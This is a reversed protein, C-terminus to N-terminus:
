NEGTTSEEGFFLTAASIAAEKDNFNFTLESQSYENPIKLESYGGNKSLDGYKMAMTGIEKDGIKELFVKDDTINNWPHGPHTSRLLTRYQHVSQIDISNEMTFGRRVIADQPHSEHEADAFM